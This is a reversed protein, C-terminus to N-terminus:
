GKLTNVEPEHPDDFIIFFKLRSNNQTVFEFRDAPNVFQLGFRDQNRGKFVRVPAPFSEAAEEVQLFQGNM